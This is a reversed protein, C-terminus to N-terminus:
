SVQVIGRLAEPIKPVKVKQSYMSLAAQFAQSRLERPIWNSNALTIAFKMAEVIEDDTFGRVEEFELQM